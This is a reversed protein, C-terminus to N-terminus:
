ELHKFEMNKSISNTSLESKKDNYLVIKEGCSLKGM